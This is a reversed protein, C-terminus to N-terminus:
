DGGVQRRRSGLWSRDARIHLTMQAISSRFQHGGCRGSRRITSGRPIAHARMTGMSISGKKGQTLIRASQSAGLLAVGCSSRTPGIPLLGRLDPLSMGRILWCFRAGGTASGRLAPIIAPCERRPTAKFGRGPRRAERRPARSRDARRLSSRPEDSIYSTSSRGFGPRSM